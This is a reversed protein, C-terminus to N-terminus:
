PATCAFRHNRSYSLRNSLSHNQIQFTPSILIFLNHCAKRREDHAELNPSDDVVSQLQQRHNHTPLGDDRMPLHLLKHM